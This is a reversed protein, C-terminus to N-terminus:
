ELSGERSLPLYIFFRGEGDQSRVIYDPKRDGMQDFKSAVVITAERDLDSITIQDTFLFTNLIGGQYAIPNVAFVFLAYIYPHQYDTTFVIQKISSRDSNKLYSFTELYGEMFDDKSRVPFQHYYHNQYFFAFLTYYGAFFIVFLMRHIRLAGWIAKFALISLLIVAPLALLSRNSSAQGQSLIAPLLGSLLWLLSLFFLRKDKRAVFFCFICLVLSVPDIVGFRGDGHRFNGMNKGFILFDLSFYSLFNSCVQWFGAQFNEAKSFVLSSARTLGNAFLADQLLPLLLLVSLFLTLLLTKSNTKLQPWYALSLTLFLLPTTIKSSHYAYLTACALLASFILHIPKKHNLYRYFLFLAWILLNLAIGAEFALRAYHIHWPSTALMLAALTAFLKRRSHNHFLELFLLYIGLVALVGHIAFPLRVAWLNHGFVATFFGSQYIALPAKYDGFSRFSTPLRELWEDRRTTFIAFGNYGIAAEDWAMGAPVQALQYFRLFTALLLIGIISALSRM